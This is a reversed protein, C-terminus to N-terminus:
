LIAELQAPTQKHETVPHGGNRDTARVYFEGPSTEEYEIYDIVKALSYRDSQQKGNTWAIADFDNDVAYAIEDAGYEELLLGYKYTKFALGTEFATGEFDNLHVQEVGAVGHEQLWARTETLRDIKRASVVIIEVDDAMVQDNLHNILPQNPQENDLVLTGDLDVIVYSM